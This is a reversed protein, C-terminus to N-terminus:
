FIGSVIDVITSTAEDLLIVNGGLVIWRRDNDPYRPLRIALDAPVAHIRQELGPPLSGRQELQRQLGPPLTDRKALGPPLGELNQTNRFWDRITQEVEQSIGADRNPSSGSGAGRGRGQALGVGSVTLILTLMLSLRLFSKM